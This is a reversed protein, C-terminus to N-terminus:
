QAINFYIGKGLAKSLTHVGFFNFNAQAQFSCSYPVLSDGQFTDLSDKSLCSGNPHSQDATFASVFINISSQQEELFCKPKSFFKSNSISVKVQPQSPFSSEIKPMILPARQRTHGDCLIHNLACSFSLNRTNQLFPSSIPIKCSRLLHNASM